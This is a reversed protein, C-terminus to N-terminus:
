ISITQYKAFRADLDILKELELTHFEDKGPQKRVGLLRLAKNIGGKCAQMIIQGCEYVVAMQEEDGGFYDTEVLAYMEMGLLRAFEHTTPEDHFIPSFSAFGMGMKHRWYDSHAADLAVIAFGAKSIVPLDYKGAADRDV